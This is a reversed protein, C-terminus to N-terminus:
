EPFPEPSTPMVLHPLQETEADFAPASATCLRDDCHPLAAPCKSCPNGIRFLRPKKADRRLPPEYNCVTLVGRTAGGLVVNPCWQSACGLSTTEAWLAQSAHNHVAFLLWDGDDDADLDQMEEDVWMVMTERVKEVDLATRGGLFVSQAYATSTDRTFTCRRASEQAARALSSNWSLKRMDAASPVVARRRANHEDLFAKIIERTYPLPLEIPNDSALDIGSVDEIALLAIAASVIPLGRRM